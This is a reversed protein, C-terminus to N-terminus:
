KTISTVIKLGPIYKNPPQYVYKKPENNNNMEKNIESNLAKDDKENERQANISSKTQASNVENMIKKTTPTPTKYPENQSKNVVPSYV